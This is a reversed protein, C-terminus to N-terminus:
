RTLYSVVVAVVAGGLTSGVFGFVAMKTRSVANAIELARLREEHDVRNAELMGLRHDATPDYFVKQVTPSM